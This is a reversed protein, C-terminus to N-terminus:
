VLTPSATAADASSGATSIDGDPRRAARPHVTQAVSEEDLAADLM